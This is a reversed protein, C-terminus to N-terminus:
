CSTSTLKLTEQKGFLLALLVEGLEAESGGGGGGRSNHKNKFVEGVEGRQPINKRKM